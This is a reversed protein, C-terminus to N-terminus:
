ESPAVLREIFAVFRAGDVKWNYRDFVATHVNIGVQERLQTDNQLSVILEHASAIDGVDVIFGGIEGVLEVTRDLRSAIVPVGRSGYEIIKTPLSHEFNPQRRLLSLGVLAGEVQRLAEDNPKYGHWVVDGDRVGAHLAAEDNADVAGTLEVRYLGRGLRGLEIMEHLGRSTSIRGVYVVCDIRSPPACEEPVITSNPVVEAGPFVTLYSTEAVMISFRRKALVVVVRVLFKALPRTVRPIYPRDAIVSVFDEHVDWVLAHACSSPVVWTLEPDHVILVDASLSRLFRRVERWSGLRRRGVARRIVLHTLDPDIFPSPSPSILTVQHGAAILTAIQRHAIRADSGHHACTVVAVHM